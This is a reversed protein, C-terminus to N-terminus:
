VEFYGAIELGDDGVGGFVYNRSLNRNFGTCSYEAIHMCGHCSGGKGKCVPDYVCNDGFYSVRDLLEKLNQEFVTFLGGINFSQKNNSYVIFSLTSPIIYESLSNRDFGSLLSCQKLFLHSLSHLLGYVYQTIISENEIKGFYDINKLNNVFFAKPQGESWFDIEENIVRNTILWKLVKKHDLQFMLAESKTTSIYVPFRNETDAGTPFCRLKSENSNRSVRTYAFVAETIPLDELFRISKFGMKDVKKLTDIDLNEHVKINKDDDIKIFEYIEEYVKKDETINTNILESFRKLIDSLNKNETTSNMKKRIINVQAEIEENSFGLSEYLKRMEDVKNDNNEGNLIYRISQKKTDFLGLYASIIVKAYLNEDEKKKDESTDRLNLFTISHPYFAESRNINIIEMSKDGEMDCNCVMYLRQSFDCGPEMCKWKFDSARQAKILRMSDYGHKECQPIHLQRVEGCKHIAVFHLQRLHSGCKKCKIPWRGNDMTKFSYVRECEQNTCEFVLPFLSAEISSPECFYFNFNSIDDPFDRNKTEWKRIVSIVKQSIYNFDYEENNVKKLKFNKTKFIGYGKDFNYISFPLYRYLVQAKGRTMFM